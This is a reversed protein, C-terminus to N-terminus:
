MDQFHNKMPYGLRSHVWTWFPRFFYWFAFFTRSMKLELMTTMSAMIPKITLKAKVKKKAHRHAYLQHHEITLCVIDKVFQKKM